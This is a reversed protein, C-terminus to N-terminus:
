SQRVLRIFGISRGGRTFNPIICVYCSAIIRDNDKAVFYKINQNKISEWVNKMTMENMEVDNPNLQQYLELLSCLDNKVLIGYEVM